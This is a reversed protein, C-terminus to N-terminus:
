IRSVERRGVWCIPRSKTWPTGDPSCLLPAIADWCKKRYIKTAGRVHFLPNRDDVQTVGNELHCIMGGGIGLRPNEDFHAFCQRFYRSDFQLDGDMKVIYDWAHCTLAEYGERFSEM